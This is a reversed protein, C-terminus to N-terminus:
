VVKMQLDILYASLHYRIATSKDLSSPRIPSRRDKSRANQTLRKADGLLNSFKSSCLWRESNTERRSQKDQMM